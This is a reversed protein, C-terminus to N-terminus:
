KRNLKLTISTVFDNEIQFHTIRASQRVWDHEFVDISSDLKGIDVDYCRRFSVDLVTKLLSTFFIAKGMTFYPIISLTRVDPLAPLCGRDSPRGKRM